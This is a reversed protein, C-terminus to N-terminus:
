FPLSAGTPLDHDVIRLYRQTTVLDAHGLWRSINQLSHGAKLMHSAWAKRLDHLSFHDIKAADCAESVVTWVKKQDLNIDDRTKVYAKAAKATAASVPIVRYRYGKSTWGRPHCDCAGAPKPGVTLTYVKGRRGLDALEFHRLEDDRLNSGLITRCLPAYRKDVVKASRASTTM